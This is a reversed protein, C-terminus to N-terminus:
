STAETHTANEEPTNDSSSEVLNFPTRKQEPDSCSRVLSEVHQESNNISTLSDIILRNMNLLTEFHTSVAHKEMCSDGECLSSISRLLNAMTFAHQRIDDMITADEPKFSWDCKHQCCRLYIGLDGVTINDDIGRELKSVRSQSCGMADAIDQQSVNAKARMVILRSILQRSYIRENVASSLEEDGFSDVLQSVSAFEGQLINASM